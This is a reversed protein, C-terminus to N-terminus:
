LIRELNKEFKSYAVDVVVLSCFKLVYQKRYFDETSAKFKKPDIIEGQAVAKAKGQRLLPRM